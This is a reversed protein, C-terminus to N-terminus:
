IGGYAMTRPKYKKREIEAEVEECYNRFAQENEASRARDFTEADQKSYALHRMWKMFHFHHEDDVDDFEQEGCTIIDLAARYVEMQVVDNETPISTWRVKNRSGGLVVGTVRGPCSTPPIKDASNYVTVKAGDSVRHANMVRLISKDIRATPEGVVVDIQTVKSEDDQVGGTLRTFMRYADTMYAYIEKDSWLYPEATDSIDARFLDYLEGSKM